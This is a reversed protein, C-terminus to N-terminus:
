LGGDDALGMLVADQFEIPSVGGRTSIYRM